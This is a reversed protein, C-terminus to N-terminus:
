RQTPNFGANGLLSHLFALDLPKRLFQDIGAAALRAGDGEHHLASVAIIRCSSVGPEERLAAAVGFGDMGPLGIDLLLLQPRWARVALLAAQGDAAIRVQHGWNLLVLATAEVADLNDDVLLIRSM